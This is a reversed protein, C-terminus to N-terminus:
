DAAITKALNAAKTADRLKELITQVIYELADIRAENREPDSAYQGNRTAVLDDLLSEWTEGM